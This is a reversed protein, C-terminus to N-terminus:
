INEKVSLLFVILLQSKIWTCKTTVLTDWVTNKTTHTKRWEKGAMRGEICPQGRVRNVGTNAHLVTSAGWAFCSEGSQPATQKTNGLSLSLSLATQKWRPISLPAASFCLGQWVCFAVCRLTVDACSKASQARYNLASPVNALCTVFPCM